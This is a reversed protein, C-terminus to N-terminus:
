EKAGLIADAEEPFYCARVIDLTYKCAWSLIFKNHKTVIWDEDKLRELIPNNKITKNSVLEEIEELQKIARNRKKVNRIVEDFKM